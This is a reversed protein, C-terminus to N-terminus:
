STPPHVRASAPPRSARFGRVLAGTILGGGIALCAWAFVDGIRSYLTAGPGAQLPGSVMVIRETSSQARVVQRGYADSLTLLGQKATRAVAFGNEVGRLIAMRAHWWGDREFDWAPVFIARLPGSRADARLTAPFDMDKCIAVGFASGFRLSAAGPTFQSELGQVLHRKDYHAANEGPSVVYARNRTVETREDFGVVLTAGTENSLAQLQALVAGRQSAFLVAVKEPWVVIRAGQRALERTALEYRTVVVHATQPDEDFAANSLADLSVLGVQVESGHEATGIRWAGFGVNATFLVVAAVALIARRRALAEAAGAAFFGILFTIAWMGFLAAPQILLPAAVQTYAPSLAAGDPGLSLAFDFGTWLTAFALTGSWAGLRRGAFAACSVAVAFCLAPAAIALAMIPAPFLGGYAEVLYAGGVGSAAFACFFSALPRRGSFAFWLVPSPAVWALPWLAEISFSLYFAAASLAACALAIM